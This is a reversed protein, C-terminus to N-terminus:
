TVYKRAEPVSYEQDSLTWLHQSEHKPQEIKLPSDVTYTAMPQPM